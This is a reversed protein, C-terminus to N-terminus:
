QHQKEKHQKEERYSSKKRKGMIRELEHKEVVEKEILLQTLSELEERHDLLLKKTREYSSTILNHVEKDIKQAMDESYPKVLQQENKGTSDYFSIPGIEKDLGFYAVMSYAQKTVKELDDLAGSSVDGFIIEEAVRGGLTACIQDIFQSKTVIQREEPLYWASGLSKGRPIISVKMLSDVHRLHWSAVAHGAEHYAIIEKEKSSTIKNKRELGGVIRDRAMLFDEQHVQNRKKRAAILAAENCINAIDAGSFGPCLASLEDINIDKAKKLPRIHVKFIEIREEKSPLELYIHRDFRGPRLLAKDLIDARNTAALVIVGTNVGFGDLEALLQNLTNEREDNSQFFNGRNRSRGVADIEDIFIISPTNEKAKKFLDRVRSAGVGVFMEVFESGSLFFFPVKAEGAVAKALLTKGTGPPGVLMVGRPIKAGLKTYHEPNKLFDVIEMIETKAEKLGAVDDFTIKSKTEKTTIKATTKTFNFLNGTRGKSTMRGLLIMWFLFILAFPLIWYLINTWDIQNVYRVPVKDESVTNIQADELKKEFNEISGIQIIYHPGSGSRTFKNQLEQYKSNSLRDQKIYINAVSQNIVEIKEVDNQTLMEQEFELWSIERPGYGYRTFLLIALIIFLITYFWFMPKRRNQLYVPGKQNAPKESKKKNQRLM